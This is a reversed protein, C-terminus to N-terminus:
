LNGWVGDHLSADIAKVTWAISVGRTWREGVCALMEGRRNGGHAWGNM